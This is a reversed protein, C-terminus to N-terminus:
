VCFYLCQVTRYAYHIACQMWDYNNEDSSSITTINEITIFYRRTIIDPEETYFVRM